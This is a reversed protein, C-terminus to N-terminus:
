LTPMQRDNSLPPNTKPTVPLCSVGSRLVVTIVEWSTAKYTAGTIKM